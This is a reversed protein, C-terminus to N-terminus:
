YCFGSSSNYIYAFGVQDSAPEFPLTLRRRSVIVSGCQSNRICCHSARGLYDYIALTQIIM